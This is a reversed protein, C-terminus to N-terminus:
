GGQGAMRNLRNILADLQGALRDVDAYLSGFAGRVRRRVWTLSVWSASAQAALVGAVVWWDTAESM